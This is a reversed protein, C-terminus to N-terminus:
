PRLGRASRAAAVGTGTSRSGPLTANRGMADLDM